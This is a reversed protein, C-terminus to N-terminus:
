TSCQRPLQLFGHSNVLLHFKNPFSNCLTPLSYYGWVQWLQSRRVWTKWKWWPKWPFVRNGQGAAWTFLHEACSEDRRKFARHKCHTAVQCCDEWCRRSQATQALQPAVHRLVARQAQRCPLPLLCPVPVPQPDFYRSTTHKYLIPVVLVFPLKHKNFHTM